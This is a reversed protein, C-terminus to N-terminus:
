TKKKWPIPVMPLGFLLLFFFKNQKNIKKYPFHTYYIKKSEVKGRSIIKDYCLEQKKWWICSVWTTTPNQLILVLRNTMECHYIREQKIKNGFLSLCKEFRSVMEPNKKKKTESFCHISDWNINSRLPIVNKTEYAHKSKKYRKQFIFVSIILIGCSEFIVWCTSICSSGCGSVRYWQFLTRANSNVCSVELKYSLSVWSKWNIKKAYYNIKHVKVM